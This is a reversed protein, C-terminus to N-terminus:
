HAFVEVRNRGSGKALYLAKDANAVLSAFDDESTIFGQAVGFSASFHGVPEVEINEITVRLKEALKQAIAIDKVNRLVVLFEEGGWRVLIDSERIHKKVNLALAKLVDDGSNHGYTDNVKKFHDIDFLIVAINNNFIIQKSSDIKKRNYLGTLSDVMSLKQLEKREKEFESVDGLVLLWYERAPKLKAQYFVDNKSLIVSEGNFLRRQVEDFSLQDDEIQMRGLIDELTFSSYNCYFNEKFSHNALIIKLHKDFLVLLETQEEFIVDMLKMYNQLENKLTLTQAISNLKNILAEREIPKILYGDVGVEIAEQLYETDSFATSFLIPVEKDIERIAQVMELGTMKPMRIDSIIIDIQENKFIELGEQGNTAIFVKKMFRKLITSFVERVDPEDEVYLLQFNKLEESVQVRSM